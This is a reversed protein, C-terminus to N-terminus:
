QVAVLPSQNVLTAGVEQREVNKESTSVASTPMLVPRFIQDPCSADRPPPLPPQVTCFPPEAIWCELMSSRLATRTSGVLLFDMRISTVGM